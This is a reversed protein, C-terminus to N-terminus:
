KGGAENHAQIAALINEGYYPILCWCAFFGGTNDWGRWAWIVFSVTALIMWLNAIRGKMGEGERRTTPKSFVMFNM